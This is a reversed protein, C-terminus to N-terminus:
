VCTSAPKWFTRQGHIGCRAVTGTSRTWKKVNKGYPFYDRLEEETIKGPPKEYHECLQRVANVYLSQNNDSYVKLQLDEIMRTRLPTM